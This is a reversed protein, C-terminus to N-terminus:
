DPWSNGQSKKYCTVKTVPRKEDGKVTRRKKISIEPDLDNSDIEDSGM